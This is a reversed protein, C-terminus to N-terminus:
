GRTLREVEFELRAIRERAVMLAQREEKLMDRLGKIESQLVAKDAKLEANYARLEAWLEESESTRISGSRQRRVSLVTGAATLAAGAAGGVGATALPGWEVAAAFAVMALLPSGLVASVVM